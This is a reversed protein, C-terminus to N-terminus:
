SKPTPKLTDTLKWFDNSAALVGQDFLRKMMQAKTAWKQSKAVASSWEDAIGFDLHIVETFFRGIDFSTTRRIIEFSAADEPFESYRGKFLSEFIVETTEKQALYGMYEIVGAAIVERDYDCTDASIGWLTLPNGAVCKYDEQALDYKPVPLVGYRMDSNESDHIKQIDRVRTVISLDKDNAFHIGSDSDNCAYNSALLDGLTDALDIAKQSIYDSSIVVLKAPDTAANDVTLYQMGSGTYFADFHYNYSRLGFGDATSKVGNEDADLWYNGILKYMEELTWKDEEVLKYLDKETYGISANDSLVDKNFIFGYTMYLLNTSIDGSVYYTNGKINTENVLADPYWSNNLNIYDPYYNVPLLHGKQSLVAATRSYVAMIDFAMGGDAQMEVYKLMDPSLSAGDTHETFELSVGLTAQLETNRTYIADLLPEGGALESKKVEFEPHESDWCLISVVEGEYAKKFAELDFLTDKPTNDSTTTDASPTTTTVDGSPTTTETKGTDNACAILMSMVMTFVMILSIIKKANM